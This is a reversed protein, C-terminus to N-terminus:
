QNKMNMKILDLIIGFYFKIYPIIPIRGDKIVNIAIVPSNQPLNNIEEM